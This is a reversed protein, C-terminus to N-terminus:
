FRKQYELEKFSIHFSTGNTRDLEITGMLQHEILTMILPLGLSETKRIDVGEPIGVGNDSVTLKYDPKLVDGTKKLTIRIEGKRGEPFAHKLSNSLLENIVLGCPIATDIGLVVDKVDINLSINETSMSYFTYLNSILTKIYDAFDINALDKSQYLKEHILAMSKVRNRSESLIDIYEKDRTYNSQLSLLSSIIQMNNNVRHHIERLLVVKEAETRRREDIESELM